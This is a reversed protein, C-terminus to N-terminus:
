PATAGEGVLKGLMVTLLSSRIRVDSFFLYPSRTRGTTLEDLGSVMLIPNMNIFSILITLVYKTFYRYNIHNDNKHSYNGM